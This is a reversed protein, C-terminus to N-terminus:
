DLTDGRLRPVSVAVHARGLALHCADVGADAHDGAGAGRADPDGCGIAGRGRVLAAVLTLRAAFRRAHYRRVTMVLVSLTRAADYIVTGLARM